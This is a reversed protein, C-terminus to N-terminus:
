PHCSSPSPLPPLTLILILTLALALALLRSPSAQLMVKEGDHVRRRGVAPRLRRAEVTARRAERRTMGVRWRPPPAARAHARRSTSLLPSPRARAGGSRRIRRRRRRRLRRGTPQCRCPWASRRRRRRTGDDYVLRYGGGPKAFLGATGTGWTTGPARRRQRCAARRRRGHARAISVAAADVAKAAAPSSAGGETLPTGEGHLDRYLPVHGPPGGPLDHASPVNEEVLGDDYRLTYTGDENVGDVTAEHYYGLWHGPAARAGDRWSKSSPTPQRSSRLRRRCSGSSSSSVSVCLTDSTSSHARMAAPTTAGNVSGVRQCSCMGSEGCADTPEHSRGDWPDPLTANGDFSPRNSSPVSAEASAAYLHAQPVRGLVTGDECQVDCRGDAHARLVIGSYWAGGRGHARVRDGVQVEEWM